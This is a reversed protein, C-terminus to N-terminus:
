NLVGCFQLITSMASSARSPVQSHREILCQDQCVSILVAVRLYIVHLSLSFYSITRYVVCSVRIEIEKDFQESLISKIREVVEERASYYAYRQLM